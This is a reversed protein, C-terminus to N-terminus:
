QPRPRQEHAQAHVAEVRQLRQAAVQRGVHTPSLFVAVELLRPVTRRQREAASHIGVFELTRTMIGLSTLTSGLVRRFSAAGDKQPLRGNTFEKLERRLQPRM